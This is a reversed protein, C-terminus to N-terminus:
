IKWGDCSNIFVADPTCTLQEENCGALFIVFLVAILVKM